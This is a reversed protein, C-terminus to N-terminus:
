HVQHPWPNDSFSMVRRAVDGFERKEKERREKKEEMKKVLEDKKTRLTGLAKSSLEKGQKLKVTAQKKLTASRGRFTKDDEEKPKDEKEESVSSVRGENQALDLGQLTKSLPRSPERAEEPNSFSM